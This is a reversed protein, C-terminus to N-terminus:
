IHQTLSAMYTDFSGTITAFSVYQKTQYAINKAHTHTNFTPLFQQNQACSLHSVYKLLSKYTNCHAATNYHTQLRNCPTQLTVPHWLKRCLESAVCVEFSVYAHQLTNCHSKIRPVAWHLCMNWVLGVRTATHQLTNCHTATHQLTACSLHSVYELLSRHTNCHRAIHQLTVQNKACGLHSM